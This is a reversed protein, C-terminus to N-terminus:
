SNSVRQCRLLMSGMDYVGKVVFSVASQPYLYLTPVGGVVTKREVVDVRFMLLTLIRLRVTMPSCAM